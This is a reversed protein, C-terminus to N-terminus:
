NNQTKKFSSKKFRYNHQRRITKKNKEQQKQNRSDKRGKNYDKTTKRKFFVM